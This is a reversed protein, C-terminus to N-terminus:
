EQSQLISIDNGLGQYDVIIEHLFNQNKKSSKLFSFLECKFNKWAVLNSCLLLLTWSLKLQLM